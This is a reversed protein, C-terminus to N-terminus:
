RRRQHEVGGNVESGREAGRAERAIAGREGIEIGIERREVPDTTEVPDQELVLVVLRVRQRDVIVLERPQRADREVGARARAQREADVDLADVPLRRERDGRGDAEVEDAEVREDIADHHSALDDREVRGGHHHAARRTHLDEGVDLDLV